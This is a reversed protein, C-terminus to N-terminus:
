SIWFLLDFILSSWLLLIDQEEKDENEDSAKDLLREISDDPQVGNPM